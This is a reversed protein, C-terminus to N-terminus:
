YWICAEANNGRRSDPVLRGALARTEESVIPVLLKQDPSLTKRARKLATGILGALVVSNSSYALNFVISDGVESFLIMGASDDSLYLFSLDKRYNDWPVPYLVPVPKSGSLIGEAMADALTDNIGDLPVCLIRDAAAVLTRDKKIEKLTFEYINNKVISVDMGAQKLVPLVRETGEIMHLETFAGLYKNAARGRELVYSFFAGATEKDTKEEPLSIWVIEYWGEHEATISVGMLERKKNGDYTATVTLIGDEIQSLYNEPLYERYKDVDGFPICQDEWGGFDYGKGSDQEEEPEKNRGTKCIYNHYERVTKVYERGEEKKPEGTAKVGKEVDYRNLSFFLRVAKSIMDLLMSEEGSLSGNVAQRNRYRDRILMARVIGSTSADRGSATPPYPKFELGDPETEANEGKKEEYRSLIDLVLLESNYQRFSIGKEAMSRSLLNSKRWYLDGKLRESLSGDPLIGINM